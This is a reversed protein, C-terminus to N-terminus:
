GRRRVFRTCNQPEFANRQIINLFYKGSDTIKRVLRTPKMERLMVFECKM